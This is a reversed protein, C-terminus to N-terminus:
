TGMKLTDKIMTLAKMIKVMSEGRVNQTILRQADQFEKDNHSYTQMYQKRVQNQM